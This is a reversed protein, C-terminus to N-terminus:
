SAELEARRAAEVDRKRKELLDYYQQRFNPPGVTYLPEKYLTKQKLERITIQQKAFEKRATKLREGCDKLLGLVMDFLEAESFVLRNLDKKQKNNLLESKIL